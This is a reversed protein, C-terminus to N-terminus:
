KIYLKEMYEGIKLVHLGSSLNGIYISDGYGTIVKNGMMDYIAYEYQSSLYINFIDGEKHYTYFISRKNQVSIIDFEETKGDYDTQSLSYYTYSIFPSEDVIEYRLTSTSNGAASIIAFDEWHIGDESKSVTFYNNNIESATTWYVKNVGGEEYGDFEILEIPLTIIDCASGGGCNGTGGFFCSIGNSVYWSACSAFPSDLCNMPIAGMSLAEAQCANIAGNGANGAVYCQVTGNPLTYVCAGGNQSQASHALMTM